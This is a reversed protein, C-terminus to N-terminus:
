AAVALLWGTLGGSSLSPEGPDTRDELSKSPNKLEWVGDSLDIPISSHLM